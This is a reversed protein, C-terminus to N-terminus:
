HTELVKAAVEAAEESTFTLFRGHQVTVGKVGRRALITASERRQEISAFHLLNAQRQYPGGHQPSFLASM